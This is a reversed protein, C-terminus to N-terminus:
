FIGVVCQSYSYVVYNNSFIVFLGFERTLHAIKVRAPSNCLRIAGRMQNLKRTVVTLFHGSRQLM